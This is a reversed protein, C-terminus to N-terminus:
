TSMQSIDSLGDNPAGMTIIAHPYSHIVFICMYPILFHEPRHKSDQASAADAHRPKRCGVGFVQIEAHFAQMSAQLIATKRTCVHDACVQFAYCSQILGSVPAM